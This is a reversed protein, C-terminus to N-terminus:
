DTTLKRNWPMADGEQVKICKPGSVIVQFQNYTQDQPTTIIGIVEHELDLGLLEHMLEHTVVITNRQKMDIRRQKM